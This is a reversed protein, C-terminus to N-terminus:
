SSNGKDFNRLNGLESISDPDVFSEIRDKKSTVVHVWEEGTACPVTLLVILVVVCSLFAKNGM